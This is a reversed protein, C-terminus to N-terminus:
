WVLIDPLGKKRMAQEKVKRSVKTLQKRFTWLFCVCRSKKYRYKKLIRKVAFLTGTTKRGSAFFFQMADVNVLVQVKRELVRLVIIM